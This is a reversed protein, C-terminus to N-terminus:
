NAVAVICHLMSGICVLASAHTQPDADCRFEQEESVAPAPEWAGDPLRALLAAVDARLAFHDMQAANV